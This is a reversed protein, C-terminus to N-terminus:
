QPHPTAAASRSPSPATAPGEQSGDRPLHGRVWGTIATHRTSYFVWGSVVPIRPSFGTACGSSATSSASPTSPGPPPSSTATSVWSASLVTPRHTAPSMRRVLLAVARVTRTPSPSHTASRYVDRGVAAWVDEEDVISPVAFVDAQWTDDWATLGAAAEPGGEDFWVPLALEDTARPRRWCWPHGFLRAAPPHM